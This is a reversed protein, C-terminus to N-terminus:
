VVKGLLGLIEEELAQIDKAIDELDRPPKYVYFQKTFPIEYGIKTKSEDIWAEPLHPLVEKEMYAECHSRLLDNLPTNDDKPDYGIPLPLNVYSPLPIIETDRLKPNPEIKGKSKYCIDATADQKSLANLIAKKIPAELKINQQKFAANVDAVFADRNIYIKKNDITQLAQLIDQQLRRGEAIEQEIIALNKRKKSEALAIFAREAKLLKIREESAIFNQRLPQEVTVKIYGFDQNNFIKSVVQDSLTEKDCQINMSQNHEFAGFIKTIQEIHHEGIENRKSGLSKRMKQYFKAADILQIKGKREESKSNNLLWIYTTIGTNYFMDNPLAVIAELLDNEIVFRRINSEGSGADGTFLPSGNLVIAIKSGEGGQDKPKEMKSIMHQLFLTAGDNVRPTGAGFRGNFGLVKHEKEVVSQQKKWDVGFPPNALIYHFKDNKYHDDLLTDGYYIHGTDQGKILMDSACIAYSEANYEQGYLFLKASTNLQHIYEESVSLMGGTGCTPDYIKRIKHDITLADDENTYILSAMLKIVERPTFHDGAEENAQENFRRILNEFITGMKANNFRSPHLDINAFSQVILYLLNDADLREIQREFEFKEFINRVKPSFSDIYYLLNRAIATQDDLLSSFDFQSINYIEGFKGCMHREIHEEKKGKLTEYKKMMEEKQTSIVCDLRRLVVMPLMVLRYQPPRYSGRLLDAIDWIFSQIQQENM